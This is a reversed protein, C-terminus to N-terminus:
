RAAGPQFAAQSRESRADQDLSDVAQSGLAQSRAPLSAGKPGPNAGNRYLEGAIPEGEAIPISGALGARESARSPGVGGPSSGPPPALPGRPGGGPEFGGSPN